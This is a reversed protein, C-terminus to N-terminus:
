LILLLLCEQKRNGICIQDQYDTFPCLFCCGFFQELQKLSVDIPKTPDCQVAYANTHDVIDSIIESDFLKRFYTMPSYLEQSDVLCVGKWPRHCNNNTQSVTQWVIEQLRSNEDDSSSETSLEEDSDIINLRQRIFALLIDDDSQSDLM